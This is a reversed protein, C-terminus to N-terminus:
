RNILLAPQAIRSGMINMEKVTIPAVIAPLAHRMLMKNLGIILRPLATSERSLEVLTSLDLCNTSWKKLLDVPLSVKVAPAGLLSCTWIVICRIILAM